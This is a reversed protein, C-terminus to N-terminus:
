TYFNNISNSRKNTNVIEKVNNYNIINEIDSIGSDNIEYNNLNYSLESLEIENNSREKNNIHLSKNINSNINGKKQINKNINPLIKNSNAKKTNMIEKSQKDEGNKKILKHLDLFVNLPTNTNTNSNININVSSLGKQCHSCKDNNLLEKEKRRNLKLSNENLEKDKIINLEILKKNEKELLDIREKYTNEKNQFSMLINNIQNKKCIEKIRNVYLLCTKILDRTKLNFELNEELKLKMNNNENITDIIMLYENLNKEENSSSMHKVKEENEKNLEIIDKLNENLNLNKEINEIQQTSLTDILREIFENIYEENSGKINYNENKLYTEIIQLKNIYLNIDEEKYIENININVLEEMYNRELYSIEKIEKNKERYRNTIQEELSIESQVDNGIFNNYEENTRRIDINSIQYDINIKNDEIEMNSKYLLNKLYAIEIKLGDIIELYKGIEVSSEKVNRIIKKKIRMAKSSYNLTNITEEYNNENYSICSIMITLINGGLSDKLLRTLKSDRYPIFCGEKNDSLINICSGLALLSKNINSGELVKNGNGKEFSGKESGALDVILFKSKIEKGDELIREIHVLIIAHSRSSYKNNSTASMTRKNNGKSVVEIIDEISSVSVETLNPVIVGKLPDDYIVLGKKHSLYKNNSFNNLLFEEKKIDTTLSLLDFIHENYIELYSIKIVSKIKGDIHYQDNNIRSFLNEFTYICIGKDINIEDYIDGFITHTKGSGTVGYAIITCNIGQLLNNVIDSNIIQSISSNDDKDDFVGDFNYEKEKRFLEMSVPDSIKITQNHKDVILYERDIKGKKNQVINDETVQNPKIRIYVKFPPNNLEIKQNKNM